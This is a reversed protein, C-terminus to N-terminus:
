CSLHECVVKHIQKQPPPSSPTIVGTISFTSKLKYIYCEPVCGKKVPQKDGAAHVALLMSCVSGKQTVVASKNSNRSRNKQKTM